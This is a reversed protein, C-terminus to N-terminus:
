MTPSVTQVSRVVYHYTHTGQWLTIVDGGRLQGLYRFINGYIDDHGSM